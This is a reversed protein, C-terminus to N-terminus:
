FQILIKSIAAEILQLVNSAFFFFFFVYILKGRTGCDDVFLSEEAGECAIADLADIDKAIANEFADDPTNNALSNNFANVTLTTNGYTPNNEVKTTMM